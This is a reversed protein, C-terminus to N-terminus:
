GKKQAGVCFNIRILEFKDLHRGKRADGRGVLADVREVELDEPVYQKGGERM